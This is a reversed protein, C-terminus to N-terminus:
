KKKSILNPDGLQLSLKNKPDHLITQGHFGIYDYEDFNKFKMIAEIDIFKARKLMDLNGQRSFPELISKLSKQKALIEESKYGKKFKYEHNSGCHFNDWFNKVLEM